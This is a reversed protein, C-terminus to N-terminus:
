GTTWNFGIMAVAGVVTVGMLMLSVIRAERDGPNQEPGPRPEVPTIRDDDADRAPHRASDTVPHRTM